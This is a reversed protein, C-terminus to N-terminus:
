PVDIRVTKNVAKGSADRGTIQWQINSLIIETPEDGAERVSKIAKLWAQITKGATRGKRLSRDAANKLKGQTIRVFQLKGPVEVAAEKNNVKITSWGSTFLGLDPLEVKGLAGDLILASQYRQKIAIDKINGSFILRSNRIKGSTIAYSLGNDTVPNQKRYEKADIGTITITYGGCNIQYGKVPVAETGTAAVPAADNRANKATDDRVPKPESVAPQAWEIDGVMDRLYQSDTETVIASSDGLIIAGRKGKSGTQGCSSIFFLGSILASWLIYHKV